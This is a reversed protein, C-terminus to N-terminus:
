AGALFQAFLLLTEEDDRHEQDVHGLFKLPKAGHLKKGDREFVRKGHASRARIELVLRLCCMMAVCDISWELNKAVILIALTSILAISYITQIYAKQGAM